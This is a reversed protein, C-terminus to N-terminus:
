KGQLSVDINILKKKKKGLLLRFYHQGRQLHHDLLNYVRAGGPRGVAVGVRGSERSRGEGAGQAGAVVRELGGEDLLAIFALALADAADVLAVRAEAAVQGAGQSLLPEALHLGQAGGDAVDLVQLLQQAGGGVTLLNNSKYSFFIEKKFNCSYYIKM